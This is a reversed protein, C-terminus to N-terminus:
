GLPLIFFVVLDFVIHSVIVPALRGVRLYLWGWWGGAALAAAVLMPNKAAVHAAGYVLTALAWGPIAGRRGMLDWQVLGRWFLEEGPAIVCALLPAIIWAPAQDRLAYIGSIQAAAGPVLRAVLLRGGFLAAYLVAAAAVGAGFDAAKIGEARFSAWRVRLAFAGLAAAGAGM